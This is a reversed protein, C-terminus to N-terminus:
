GAGACSAASAATVAANSRRSGTTSSSSGKNDGGCAAAVLAAGLLVTAVKAVGASRSLQQGGPNPDIFPSPVRRAARVVWRM